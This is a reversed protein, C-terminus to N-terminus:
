DMKRPIRAEISVLAAKPMTMGTRAFQLRFYVFIAIVPYSFGLSLKEEKFQETGKEMKETQCVDIGVDNCFFGCRDWAQQEAAVTLEHRLASAEQLFHKGWAQKPM